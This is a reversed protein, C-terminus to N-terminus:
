GGTGGGAQPRLGNLLADLYCEALDEPAPAGGPEFWFHSSSLMALVGKVLLPSAERLVGAAAGDELAQRWYGEYRERAALVEDRRVGTLAPHDRLLVTWEAQHQAIERLLARTLERLLEEPPHGAGLVAEAHGILRDMQGRTIAYLLAEKSEVYRHLEDRGLGIAKALDGVATGEYGHRAFLEAAVAVARERGPWTTSASM